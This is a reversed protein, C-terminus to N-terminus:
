VSHAGGSNGTVNEGPVAKLSRSGLLSMAVTTRRPAVRPTAVVGTGVSEDTPSAVRIASIARTPAHGIREPPRRLYSLCLSEFAQRWFNRYHKADDAAGVGLPSSQRAEM